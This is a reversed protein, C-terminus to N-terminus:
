RAAIPRATPRTATTGMSFSNTGTIRLDIDAGNVSGTFIHSGLALDLALRAAGPQVDATIAADNQIIVVGIGTATEGVTWNSNMCGNERNTLSLTYTGAADVPEDGGCAALVLAFSAAVNAMAHTTPMVGM